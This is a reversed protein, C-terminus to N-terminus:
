PLLRDIDYKLHVEIDLNRTNKFLGDLLTVDSLLQNNKKQRRGRM